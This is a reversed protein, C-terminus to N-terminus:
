SITISYGNIFWDSVNGSAVTSSVRLLFSSYGMLGSAVRLYTDTRSISNGNYYNIIYYGFGVYVHNGEITGQTIRDENDGMMVIYYDAVGGFLLVPRNNDISNKYNTLNFSSNQKISKANVYRNKGQIYSKLGNVCDVESVGTGDINTRMLTYLENMVQKVATGNANKYRGNAPYYSTYNNILNEYYKDYFGVVISGAVPGCASQLDGSATYLPVANTTEIYTEERRTYSVDESSIDSLLSVNSSFTELRDVKARLTGLPFLNTFLIIAILPLLVIYFKRKTKM